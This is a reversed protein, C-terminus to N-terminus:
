MSKVLRFGRSPYYKLAAFSAGHEHSLENLRALGSSDDDSAGGESPLDALFAVVADDPLRGVTVPMADFSSHRSEFPLRIRMPRFTM